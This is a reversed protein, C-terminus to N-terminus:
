VAGSSQSPPTRSYIGSIRGVGSLLTAGAGIMGATQAQDGQMTAQNASALGSAAVRQGKWRTIEADLASNASIDAMLDLPSGSDIQVGSDGAANTATALKRRSQDQIRATEAESSALASGANTRQVTANYNAAAAQANGSQMSGYAGAAASAASAVAAVTAMEEIGTM